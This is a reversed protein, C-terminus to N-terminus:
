PRGNKRSRNGAANGGAASRTGQGIRAQSGDQPGTRAGSQAGYGTGDQPGQGMNGTGDSVGNQNGRRARQGQAFGTGSGIPQGSIDCIGDGDFDMVGTGTGIPQGTIDCIGDGDLDMVGQRTQIPTTANGQAFIGAVGSLLVAVTALILIKRFNKM